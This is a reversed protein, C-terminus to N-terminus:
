VENLPPAMEGVRRAASQCWHDDWMDCIILATRKPEWRVKTEALSFTNAARTRSRLNLLLTNEAALANSMILLAGIVGASVLEARCSALGSRLLVFPKM